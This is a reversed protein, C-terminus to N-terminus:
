SIWFDGATYPTGTLEIKNYSRVKEFVHFKENQKEFFYDM